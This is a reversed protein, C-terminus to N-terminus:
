DFCLPADNTARMELFSPAILVFIEEEDTENCHGCLRPWITLLGFAFLAGLLSKTQELLRLSHFASQSSFHILALVRSDLCLCLISPGM